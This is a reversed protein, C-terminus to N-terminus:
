SRVPATTLRRALLRTVTVAAITEAALLGILVLLQVRGAEV